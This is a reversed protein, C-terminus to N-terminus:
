LAPPAPFLRMGAPRACVWRVLDRAHQLQEESVLDIKNLLIVDAFAIQNVAENVVGSSADELHQLVCLPLPLCAPLCRAPSLVLGSVSRPGAEACGAGARLGGPM